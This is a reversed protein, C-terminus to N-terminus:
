LGCLGRNWWSQTCVYLLLDVKRSTLASVGCSLRWRFVAAQHTEATCEINVNSFIFIMSRVHHFAGEQPQLWFFHVSQFFVPTTPTLKIMLKIQTWQLCVDLWLVWFYFTKLRSLKSNRRCSTRISWCLWVLVIDAFHKNKSGHCCFDESKLRKKWECVDVNFTAVTQLFM